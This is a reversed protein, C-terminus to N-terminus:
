AAGGATQLQAAKQLARHQLVKVNGESVNMAAATEKLSYGRLFRYTLVQRYNEPLHGLLATVRRRAPNDDEDGPPVGPEQAVEQFGREEQLAELSLAPGKYYVRWHDAITTRAVQYLWAIQSAEDLAVNLGQAAKMFVQATIDEADERNGVKHYIFRYIPVAHADYLRRLPDPAPPGNHSLGAASSPRAPAKRGGENGPAPHDHRTQDFALM